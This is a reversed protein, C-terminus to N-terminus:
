VERKMATNKVITKTNSRNNSGNSSTKTLM